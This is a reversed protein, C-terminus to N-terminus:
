PRATYGDGNEGYLAICRAYNGVLWPNKANEADLGKAATLRDRLEGDNEVFFWGSALDLFVMAPWGRRGRGPLAFAVPRPAQGPSLKERLPPNFLVNERAVSLAKESTLPLLRYRAELWSLLEAGSRRCPPPVNGAAICARGRALALLLRKERKKM